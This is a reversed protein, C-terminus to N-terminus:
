DGKHLLMPALCVTWNKRTIVVKFVKEILLKQMCLTTNSGVTVMSSM